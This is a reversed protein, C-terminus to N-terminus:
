GMSCYAGIEEVFNEDGLAGQKFTCSEVSLLLDPDPVIVPLVEVHVFVLQDPEPNFLLFKDVLKRYWWMELIVLRTKM